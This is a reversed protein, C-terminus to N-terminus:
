KITIKMGDYAAFVNPPLKSQFDEHLGIEHCFHTLYTKEPKIKEIIELAENLSLHAFHERERLVNLVLVKLGKLKELEEEPITKADTIYAFNGIRYGLIPLKGHLIQIPTVKIGKFFFPQSDIENTQFSPVGPYLEDRFCYDIRRHLDDNVDKKLFVPFKGTACFPRLDDIGGVHDYHSHTILLCDANYINNDIAQQRFDPSADILIKVGNVELLASTRLRKDKPNNSRCVNCGCGVEPVGKSTGTGLITLEMASDTMEVEPHLYVGFKDLVTQQIHRALDKIDKGTANGKNVIVLSHQKSVMAGGISYGRLGCEEILKAAPLKVYYQSETPYSPIEPSKRKIVDEYYYWHVVPNKFFSGANGEIKPNPLKSERIQIVKTAVDKITVHTKKDKLEKLADYELNLSEYRKNLKFCVRLVIYRGKGENKFISSRYAYRCQENSLTVEKNEVIDYCEVRFVSDKAEAGYAGINQIAASGVEGPIGALNELGQLNESIVFEMLDQWKEGAGSIIYATEEDKDYRKIGKISSHLVIGDYNELFVINTCDGIHIFENEEFELSSLIKKLESVDAYEAYLKAKVTVGFSTQIFKDKIFTTM